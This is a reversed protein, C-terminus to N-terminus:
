RTPCFHTPVLVCMCKHLSHSFRRDTPEPGVFIRGSRCNKSSTPGASRCFFHRINYLSKIGSRYFILRVSLINSKDTRRVSLFKITKMNETQTNIDLTEYICVCESTATTASIGMSKSSPLSSMTVNTAVSNATPTTLGLVASVTVAGTAISSSPTALTSNVAAATANSSFASSGTSSASVTNSADTGFQSQTQDGGLAASDKVSLKGISDSLKTSAALKQAAAASASNASSSGYGGSQNSYASQNSESDRQYSSNGSQSVSSNQYASGASQSVGGVSNQYSSGSQSVVSSQFAPASQSDRNHYASSQSQSSAYGPAVGGTSVGSSQYASASGGNNSQFSSPPQNTNPYLSNQGQDGRSYGGVGQSTVSSQFAASQARYDQLGTQSLSSGSLGNNQSSTYSSVGATSVVTAAPPAAVGSQPKYAGSSYASSYNSQQQQSYSLQQNGTPGDNALSGTIHIYSDKQPLQISMFMSSCFNPM